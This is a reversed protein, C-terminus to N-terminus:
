TANKIDAYAQAFVEMFNEVNLSVSKDPEMKMTTKFEASPAGEKGKGKEAKKEPTIVKKEKTGKERADRIETQQQVQAKEAVAVGTEQVSTQNELETLVSESTATQRGVSTKIDELLVSYLDGGVFIKGNPQIIPLIILCILSVTHFFRSKCKQNM